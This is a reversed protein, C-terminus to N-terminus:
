APPGCRGTHCCRCCSRAAGASGGGSWPASQLRRPGGPGTGRNSQRHCSPPARRAAAPASPGARFCLARRTGAPTPPGTDKFTLRDPERTPTANASDAPRGQREGRPGVRLYAARACPGGRSVLTMIMANAEGRTAEEISSAQVFDLVPQRFGRGPPPPRTSGPLRHGRGAPSSKSTGGKPLLDLQLRGRTHEGGPICRLTVLFSGGRRTTWFPQVSPSM